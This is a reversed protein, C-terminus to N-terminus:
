GAGEAEAGDKPAQTEEIARESAAHRDADGSSKEKRKQTQLLSEIVMAHIVRQMILITVEPTASPLWQPQGLADTDNCEVIVQGEPMVVVRYTHMEHEGQWLQMPKELNFRM